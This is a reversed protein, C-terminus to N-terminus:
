RWRKSGPSAGFMERRMRALEQKQEETLPPVEVAVRALYDRTAAVAAGSREQAVTAKADRKVAAAEKVVAVQKAMRAKDM